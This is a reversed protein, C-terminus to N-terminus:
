RGRAVHQKARKGSPRALHPPAKPDFTVEKGSGDVVTCQSASPCSMAAQTSKAHEDIVHPVPSGPSAPNFTFESLAEGLGDDTVTCQTITPCAITSLYRGPDLNHPERAGPSDPNFTVENSGAGRTGVTISTCQSVSPCAIAGTGSIGIAGDVAPTPSTPNFTVEKGGEGVATTIVTCQSASPCAVGEFGEEMIVQVGNVLLPQGDTTAPILLRNPERLVPTSSPALSNFTIEGPGAGVGTCQSVAPCALSMFTPGPTAGPFLDYSSVSRPTNPNFIYEQGGDQAVCHTASTCALQYEFTNEEFFVSTPGISTPTPRGPSRPNFTVERGRYDIATCQSVSPCAVASLALSGDIRVPGSHAADAACPLALLLLAVVLVSKSSM